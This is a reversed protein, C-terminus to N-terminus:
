LLRTKMDKGDGTTLKKIVMVRFVDDSDNILLHPVSKPSEVLFDKEVNVQEDGIIVLGKGELVYFLVDVPTMHRKLTEGPQLTIVVVDTSPSGHVKRVDVNHPNESIPTKDLTTVYITM